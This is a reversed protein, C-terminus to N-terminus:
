DKIMPLFNPIRIGEHHGRNEKIAALQVAPPISDLHRKMESIVDGFDADFSKWIRRSLQEVFILLFNYLPPFWKSYTRARYHKATILTFNIVDVYFNTLATYLLDWSGSGCSKFHDEVGQFLNLKDLVDKLFGEIKGAEDAVSIM